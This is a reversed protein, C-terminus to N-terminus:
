KTSPEFSAGTLVPTRTFGTAMIAVIIQKESDAFNWDFIPYKLRIPAVENQSEIFQASSKPYAHHDLYNQILYTEANLPWRNNLHCLELPHDIGDRCSLLTLTNAVKGRFSDLRHSPLGHATHGEGDISNCNMSFGINTEEANAFSAFGITLAFFFLKITEGLDHRQPPKAMWKQLHQLDFGQRYDQRVKGSSWGGKQDIM